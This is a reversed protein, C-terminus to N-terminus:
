LAKAWFPQFFVAYPSLLWITGLAWLSVPLVHRRQPDCTFGRSTLSVGLPHPHSLGADAVSVAAAAAAAAVAAVAASKPPSQDVLPATPRGRRSM